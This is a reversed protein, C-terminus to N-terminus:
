LKAFDKCMEVCAKGVERARPIRDIAQQYNMSPGSVGLLVPKDYEISMEMFQKTLAYSIVKDHDTKGEVVAGLTVVGDCADDGSLECLRKVGLPIDFSGPVKIVPGVVGGAELIGEKCAELMPGTIDDWYWSSVVIGVVIKKDNSSSSSSSNNDNSSKNDNNNELDM